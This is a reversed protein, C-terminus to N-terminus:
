LISLTPENDGNEKKVRRILSDANENKEVVVCLTESMSVLGM